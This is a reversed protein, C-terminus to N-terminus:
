FSSRKKMKNHPQQFSSNCVENVRFLVSAWCVFFAFHLLAQAILINLKSITEINECAQTSKACIESPQVM